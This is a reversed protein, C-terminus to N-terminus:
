YESPLLIHNDICILTFSELPINKIGGLSKFISIGKLDFVEVQYIDNSVKDFKFTKFFEDDINENQCIVNEIFELIHNCNYAQIFNNVGASYHIKGYYQYFLESNKFSPMKDNNPKIENTEM